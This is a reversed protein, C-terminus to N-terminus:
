TAGVATNPKLEELTAEELSAVVRIEEKSHITLPGEAKELYIVSASAIGGGDGGMGVRVGEKIFIPGDCDVCNRVVVDELLVLERRCVLSKGLFNRAGIKATGEVHLGGLFTVDAESTLDGEVIMNYPIVEGRPIRADGRVRITEAERSRVHAQTEFRSNAIRGTMQIWPSNRGSKKENLTKRPFASLGSDVGEGKRRVRRSRKDITRDLDVFLPGSDKPKRYEWVGWTFCLVTLGALLGLIVFYGFAIVQDVGRRRIRKQKQTRPTTIISCVM